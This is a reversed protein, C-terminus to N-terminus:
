GNLTPPKEGCFATSRQYRLRIVHKVNCSRRIGCDWRGEGLVADLLTRLKVQFVVWIWIVWVMLVGVEQVDGLGHDVWSPFGGWLLESMEQRAEKLLFLTEASGWGKVDRGTSITVEIFGGNGNGAIENSGGGSGTM